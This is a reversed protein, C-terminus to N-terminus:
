ANNSRRQRVCVARPLSLFSRCHTRRNVHIPSVKFFTKEGCRSFARVNRSSLNSGAVELATSRPFRRWRFICFFTYRIRLLTQKSPRIAKSMIRSARASSRSWVVCANCWARLPAVHGVIRAVTDDYGLKDAFEIQELAEHYTNLEDHEHWQDADLPKPTQLQFNIGFKMNEEGEQFCM